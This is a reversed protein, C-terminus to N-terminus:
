AALRAARRTYTTIKKRGRRSKTLGAATLWAALQNVTPPAVDGERCWESFDERLQSFAHDGDPLLQEFRRFLKAAPAPTSARGHKAAAPPRALTPEARRPPTRWAAPVAHLAGRHPEPTGTSMSM